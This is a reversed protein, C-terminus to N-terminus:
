MRAQQEWGMPRTSTSTQFALVKADEYLKDCPLEGGVIRCFLCDPKRAVSM